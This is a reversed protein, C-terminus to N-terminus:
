YPIDEDNIEPAPQRYKEYGNRDHKKETKRKRPEEQQAGAAVEPAFDQEFRKREIVIKGGPPVLLAAIVDWTKPVFGAVRYRETNNFNSYIKGQEIYAM